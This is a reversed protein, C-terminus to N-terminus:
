KLILPLYIPHVGGIPGYTGSASNPSGTWGDGTIVWPLSWPAGTKDPITVNACFSFLIGSTGGFWAGCGSPFVVNSQWFVVNDAETGSVPPFSCGNAPPVSNAAVSNVTWNDPLDVELRDAFEADLSQILFGFCIDFANGVPLESPTVTQLTSNGVSQIGAQPAGLSM